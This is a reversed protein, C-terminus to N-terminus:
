SASPRDEREQTFRHTEPGPRAARLELRAVQLSVRRAGGTALLQLSEGLHGGRKAHAPAAFSGKLSPEDRRLLCSLMSTQLPKTSRSRRSEFGRGGAHCAQEVSVVIPSSQRAIARNIRSQPARVHSKCVIAYARNRANAARRSGSFGDFV